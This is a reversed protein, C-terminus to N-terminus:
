KKSIICEQVSHKRENPEKSEASYGIPMVVMLDYQEGDVDCLKAVEDKNRRIEAIWVAGLGLAHTALLMNEACAGMTNADKVADYGVKTDMFLCILVEASELIATHKSLQAIDSKVKADRIIAFRWPENAMGSPSRTGALLIEDILKDDVAQGTYERVNKRTMIAQMADM